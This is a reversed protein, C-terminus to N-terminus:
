AFSWPDPVAPAGHEDRSISASSLLGALDTVVPVAPLGRGRLRELARETSLERVDPPIAAHDPVAIWGDTTPLPRRFGAPRRPDLGAAVRARAPATVVDAAGLLSSDVRVGCGTRERLLLGALVAEAGLLGGLVDLLTMLSPAPPEDAPRAAEGVGTRAQVMFDTGMPAGALRDAWGSTYAYVLATDVAALDEHDLGLQAAKGPAWNHLFVDAEAAM